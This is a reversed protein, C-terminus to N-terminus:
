TVNSRRRGPGGAKVINIDAGLTITINPTGAAM